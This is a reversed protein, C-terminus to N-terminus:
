GTTLPTMPFRNRMMTVLSDGYAVLRLQPGWNSFLGTLVRPESLSFYAYGPTLNSPWPEFSSDLVLQDPVFEYCNHNVDILNCLQGAFNSRFCEIAIQRLCAEVDPTPSRRGRMFEFDYILAQRPVDIPVGIRDPKQLSFGRTACFEDYLKKADTVMRWGADELSEADNTSM